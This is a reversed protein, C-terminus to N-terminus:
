CTSNNTLGHQLQLPMSLSHNLLWYLLPVNWAKCLKYHLDIHPTRSKLNIVRLYLCAWKVVCVWSYKKMKWEHCDWGACQRLDLIPGWCGCHALAGSVRDYVHKVSIRWGHRKEEDFFDYLEIITNQMEATIDKSRSMSLRASWHWIIDM